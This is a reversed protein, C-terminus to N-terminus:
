HIDRLSKRNRIDELIKLVDPYDDTIGYRYNVYRLIGEPDVIFLSRQAFQRRSVPVRFATVAERNELDSAMPYDAGVSESFAKLTELSDLSVAV